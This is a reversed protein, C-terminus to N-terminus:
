KKKLYGMPNWTLFFHERTRDVEFENSEKLFAELAEYPGKPWVHRRDLGHNAISDEIIFYQGPTVLKAYKRLCGLTNEFSHESDEIIMVTDTPAILAEVMLVADLAPSEILTIRPHNRAKEHINSHKIDVGILKGKGLVDMWHAMMLLSGGFKNGIEVIVDPQKEYIIEQFVWADLPSKYTQVGFYSTQQLIGKQMIPLIQEVTLNLNNEMLKM